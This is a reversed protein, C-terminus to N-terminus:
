RTFEGLRDQDFFLRSSHGRVTGTVPAAAQALVFDGRATAQLQRITDRYVEVVLEPVERAGTWLRYHAIDACWRVVEAPVPALPLPYRGRLYGDIEATADALARALVEADAADADDRAALQDLAESGFRVTLDETSAYTM